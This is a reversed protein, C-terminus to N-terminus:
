EHVTFRIRLRHVDPPGLGDSSTLIELEVVDSGVYGAVPKYVYTAVWDTEADRRIESIEAHLPRITVRAGDEDGSETSYEFTDVNSLSVNLVEVPSSRGCSLVVGCMLLLSTTSMRRRAGAHTM